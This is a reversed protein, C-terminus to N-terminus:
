GVLDAAEECQLLITAADASPLLVTLTFRGPESPSLTACRDSRARRRRAATLSPALETM